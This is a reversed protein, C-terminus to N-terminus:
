PSTPLFLVTGVLIQAYVHNTTGSQDGGHQTTCAPDNVGKVKVRCGKYTGSLSSKSGTGVKKVVSPPSLSNAFNVIGANFDSKFARLWLTDPLLCSNIARAMPHWFLREWGYVGSKRTLQSVICLCSKEADEIVKGRYNKCVCSYHCKYQRAIRREVEMTICLRIDSIHFSIHVKM